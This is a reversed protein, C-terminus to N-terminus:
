ATAESRQFRDRTLDGQRAETIRTLNPVDVPLSAGTATPPARGRQSKSSQQALMLTSLVDSPPVDGKVYLVPHQEETKKWLEEAIARLADEWTDPRGAFNDTKLARFFADICYAGSDLYKKSGNGARSSEGGACSSLVVLKPIQLNGVVESAAEEAECCCLVLVVLVGPHTRNLAKRLDLWKFSIRKDVMFRSNNNYNHGSLILWRIQIGLTNDPPRAVYAAIRELLPPTPGSLKAFREYFGLKRLRKLVTFVDCKIKDYRFGKPKGKESGSSWYSSDSDGSDMEEIKSELRESADLGSPPNRIFLRLDKSAVMAVETSPHTRQTREDSVVAPQVGRKNLVTTKAFTFLMSMANFLTSVASLMFWLIIWFRPFLPPARTVLEQPPNDVTPVPVDSESSNSSPTAHKAFGLSHIWRDQEPPSESPKKSTPTKLGVSDSAVTDNAQAFVPCDVCRVSEFGGPGLVGHRHLSSELPLPRPSLCRIRSSRGSKAGCDRTFVSSELLWRAM